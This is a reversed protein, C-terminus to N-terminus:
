ILFQCFRTTRSYSAKVSNANDFMYTIGARPELQHQYNYLEGKKYTKSYDVKYDSLYNIEEGNSINQFLSYRLGYKLILKESIKM